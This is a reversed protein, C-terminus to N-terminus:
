KAAGTSATPSLPASTRAGPGGWLALLHLGPVQRHAGARRYRPIKTGHVRPHLHHEVHYGNNFWVSNYLFGYCSVACTALDADDCMAHEAYNELLALIQGGVMTTLAFLGFVPRLASLGAFFLLIALWELRVPSRGQRAAVKSLMWPDTRLVGLTSYALASEPRGSRGFRWISSWDKTRGGPGQRDNNFQHHNLHHIRYASQAVGLAVSNLVSFGTNHWSRRFFPNHIFNHAVCQFNTCVLCAILIGTGFPVQREGIRWFAFLYLAVTLFSLAVLAGDAAHHKLM